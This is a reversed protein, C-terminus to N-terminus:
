GWMVRLADDDQLRTVGDRTEGPKPLNAVFALLPAEKGLDGTQDILTDAGEPTAPQAPLTLGTEPVVREEQATQAPAFLVSLRGEGLWLDALSGTEPWALPRSIGCSVAIGDFLARIATPSGAFKARIM